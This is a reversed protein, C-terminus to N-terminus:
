EAPPQWFRLQLPNFISSMTSPGMAELFSGVPVAEAAYAAQPIRLVV